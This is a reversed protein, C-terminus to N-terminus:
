LQGKQGQQLQHHLKLLINKRTKLQEKYEYSDTHHIESHLDSICTELMDLLMALEESTFEITIM